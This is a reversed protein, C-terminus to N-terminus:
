QIPRDFYKKWVDYAPRQVGKGDILGCDRWAVLWTPETGKIKEWLQDYDRYFFSIVFKFGRTQALSLIKEYYSAQLDPSGRVTFAQGNALAFTLEEASEGTEAVAYPRKFEDFSNTLWALAHDVTSPGQLFPYFSIAVFDNCVMLQKFADVMEKRVQGGDNFMSNLSFSAFIPLTPYKKKLEQYVYKHLRVYAPWKAPSNQFLENVEVGIALFDPKFFEVARQCYTLYAKRVVPDDFAKGKFEPPLPLNEREGWYNALDSRPIPIMNLPNLALYVKMDKPTESKRRQWDEEVPKAFPRNHLAETWPVGEM